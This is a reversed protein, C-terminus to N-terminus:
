PVGAAEADRRMTRLKLIKYPQSGKGARFQTYFIPLGDDLWIAVAAFPMLLILMVVGVLGGIIDIIRKVMEYFGSVRHEDVFSRLIWDAELLRIPVRGLMDEYAKPMRIIEVGREQAELMAQFMGSKMEGSIAVILDSVNHHEILELLSESTGLVQQNEITTGVKAVNDDIIGAVYFPPPWLDNIIQLMTQGAKGGGILLVRRMFQPDTFIRIYFLRWILTLLPAAIFFGAVGRRPLLSKPPDLYSFYLLLYLGFGILTATAVGSITARWNGARHVDYLEVLLILWFIPFLFFWGPVRRQIFELSWGPFRDAIGWFYLALM